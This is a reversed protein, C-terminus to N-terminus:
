RLSPSRGGALRLALDRAPGEPWLSPPADAPLEVSVEERRHVPDDGDGSTGKFTMVIGDSSERRRCFYGAGLVRNDPTDLYSDHLDVLRGPSVHFPGLEVADELRSFTAEDPVKFKAEIEM